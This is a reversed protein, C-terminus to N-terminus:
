AEPHERRLSENHALAIGHIVYLTNKAAKDMARPPSEEAKGTVDNAVPAAIATHKEGSSSQVANAHIRDISGLLM